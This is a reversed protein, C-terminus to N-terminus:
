VKFAVNIITDDDSTTMHQLAGADFLFPMLAKNSLAAASEGDPVKLRMVGEGSAWDAEKTSYPNGRNVFGSIISFRNVGTERIIKDYIEGAAYFMDMLTQDHVNPINKAGNAVSQLDFLFDSLMTYDSTRIHHAQRRGGGHYSPFGQGRWGHPLGEQELLALARDKAGQNPYSRYDPKTAGAYRNEYFAKRARANQVEDASVAICLFPSESYTILRSYPYESANIAHALAVPASKETNDEPDHNVWEHSVIDCAAGLDWRHHSPKDPDQYHVIARSLEPCIYGYSISLPGAQELFPELFENCLARANKMKLPLEPDDPELMNKYGKTYVSHCGLFDSLLFHKSLRVATPDFDM